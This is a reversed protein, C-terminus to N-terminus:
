HSFISFNKLSVNNQESFFSIFFFFMIKCVSAGMVIFIHTKNVDEILHVKAQFNHFVDEIENSNNNTSLNSM